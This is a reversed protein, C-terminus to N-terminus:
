HLSYVLWHPAKAVIRLCRNYITASSRYRDNEWAPSDMPVSYNIVFPESLLKQPYAACHMAPYHLDITHKM